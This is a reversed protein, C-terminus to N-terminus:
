DKKNEWVFWWSLTNKRNFIYDWWTPKKYHIPDIIEVKHSNIDFIKNVIELNKETEIILIIFDIEKKFIEIKNPNTFKLKEREIRRLENRINEKTFEPPFRHIGYWYSNYLWYHYQSWFQSFVKQIRTVKEDFSIYDNLIIEIIKKEFIEKMKLM